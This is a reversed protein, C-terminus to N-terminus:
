IEGYLNEEKDAWFKELVRQQILLHTLDIQTNDKGIPIVIVRSGDPLNPNKELNVINHRYVGKLIREM